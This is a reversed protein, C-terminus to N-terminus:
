AGFARALQAQSCLKNGPWAAARVQVQLVALPFICAHYLGKLRRAFPELGLMRGNELPVSVRDPQERLPSPVAGALTPCKADIVGARRGQCILLFCALNLSSLPIRRREHISLKL